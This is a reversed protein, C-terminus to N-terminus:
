IRLKLPTWKTALLTNLHDFTAYPGFSVLNLTKTCVKKKKLAASVAHLKRSSMATFKSWGFRGLCRQWTPLKMVPPFNSMLVNTAGASIHPQPTYHLADKCSMKLWKKIDHLYVNQRFIFHKSVMCLACLLVHHCSWNHGCRQRREPHWRTGCQPLLRDHEHGPVGSVCFYCLMSLKEM